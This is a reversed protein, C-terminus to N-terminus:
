ISLKSQICTKFFNEEYSSDVWSVTVLLISPFIQENEFEAKILAFAANQYFALYTSFNM